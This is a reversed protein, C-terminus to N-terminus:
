REVLERAIELANFPLKQGAIERYDLHGPGCWLVAASGALSIARDIAERPDPIELHEIGADSLAELLMNRITAPDEDRPHQDTVIVLKAGSTALAMERRKGTDRNGSAGLVVILESHRALSDSVAARVGAPTHAYDVYVAPGRESVRELRGPVRLDLENAVSAVDGPDHGLEIAMVAALALNKAMTSGLDVNLQLQHKGSLALPQLSSLEYDLGAGIGITPIASDRLLREGFEDEVNIVAKSSLNREFLRAKTAFYSEMSGFDDLHDRSLNTFGALDFRLGGIRGREIAQASVEIVARNEGKARMDSLLQHIRPAEPTTLQNSVPEGAVVSGTGCILGTKEGLAVLLRYLYTSVSTKGNTGTIAVLGTAPTRFVMASLEGAIARPDPHVLTPLSSPRDSLVAVAGNTIAPELHDLGHSKKGPAAIFLYGPRVHGSSLATGTIELDVSTNLGFRNAIQELSPM